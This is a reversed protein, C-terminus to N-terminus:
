KKRTKKNYAHVNSSGNIFDQYTIYEQEQETRKIPHEYKMKMYPNPIGNYKSILSSLYKNFQLLNGKYFRIDKLIDHEENLSISEIHKILPLQAPLIRKKAEEFDIFGAWDVELIGENNPKFKNKNIVTKSLGIDTLNNIYVIYYFIRKKNNPYDLVYRTKLKSKNINITVEEFTERIAADKIDENKDILGKPISYSKYWKQGTPHGLLIKDEFVIVIGAALKM